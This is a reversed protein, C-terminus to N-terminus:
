RCTTEERVNQAPKILPNLLWLYNAGINDINERNNLRKQQFITLNFKILPLLQKAAQIPTSFFYDHDASSVTHNYLISTQM